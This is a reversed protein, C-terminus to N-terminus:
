DIGTKLNEYNDLVKQLDKGQATLTGTIRLKSREFGEIVADQIVGAIVNLNLDQAAPTAGQPTTANIAPQPSEVIGGEAFPQIQKANNGSNISELLPLFRATAQRNIIFEGTQVGIIGSEGSPTFISQLVDAQTVKGGRAFKPLEIATGTIRHIPSLISITPAISSETHGSQLPM